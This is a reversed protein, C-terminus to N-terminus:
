NEGHGPVSATVIENEGWLFSELAANDSSIKSYNGTQVACCGLVSLILVGYIIRETVAKLSAAARRGKGLRSDASLLPCM